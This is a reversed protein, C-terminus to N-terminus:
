AGEHRVFGGLEEASTLGRALAKARMAAYFEAYTARQYPSLFFTGIGQTLLCLLLWGLFSLQLVFYHFKEGRMMASSLQLARSTSLYPNEALLYPVLAYCYAWYIGPVLFLFIGVTVKLATLFYVKVINLYPTRFVTLLTGLPSPSQRSEMFYRCLGVTLPGAVFIDWLFSGLLALSLGLLIVIATRTPIALLYNVSDSFTLLLQLSIGVGSGGLLTVILCCWFSRWYRGSLARWGNRKLLSCTWMNM